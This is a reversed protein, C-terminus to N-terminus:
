EVAERRAFRLLVSQMALVALIALLALLAPAPPSGPLRRLNPMWSLVDGGQSSPEGEPWASFQLCANRM